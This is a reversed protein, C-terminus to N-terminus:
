ALELLLSTPQELIEKLRATFRAGVAGDIVRHDFSNSLYTMHRIVIQDDDTVVPRKRIANTGLIAVEPRNLIPTALVGGISGVGTITFTSGSLEAPTCRGERARAFLDDMEAAITLIPKDQVDRVVPVVLGNPTDCAFGMHHAGHVVLERAEEDMTANIEPFDAFAVSCAKAFFPLYTLKVGRKAALAKLDARIQVLATADIEEVYTFHPAVRKAEQMREFIKRRVGRIPIRRDERTAAARPTPLSPAAQARPAAAPSAPARTAAELDAHMVRGGPGSGPVSSLDVALERARRRVAPAAKAPGDAHRAVPPPAVTPAQSPTPARTPAAQPASKASDQESASKAPSAAAAGEVDFRALPTHVRVIDGDEAFREALVGAVPSSIEVSAKDTTVECLPQDKAVVEGAAVKWETIEVEVVGEGIEPVVFTYSSM